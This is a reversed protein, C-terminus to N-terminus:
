QFCVHHGRHYLLGFSDTANISLNVIRLLETGSTPPLVATICQVRCASSRPFVM